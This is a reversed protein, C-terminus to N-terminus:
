LMLFPRCNPTPSTRVKEQKGPYRSSPADRMVQRPPLRRTHLEGRGLHTPLHDHAKMKSPQNRQAPQNQHAPIPPTQCSVFHDTGPPPSPAPILNWGQLHTCPHASLSRNQRPSPAVLCMASQTVGWCVGSAEAAGTIAHTSSDNGYRKRTCNLLYFVAWHEAAAWLWSPNVWILCVLDRVQNWEPLAQQTPKGSRHYHGKLAM